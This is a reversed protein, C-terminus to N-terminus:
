MYKKIGACFQESETAKYYTKLDAFTFGGAKNWSQEKELNNHSNLTGQFEMSIKLYINEM